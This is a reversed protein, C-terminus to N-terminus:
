GPFAPLFAESGTDLFREIVEDATLTDEKHIILLRGVGQQVRQYIEQALKERDEFHHEALRAKNLTYLLGSRNLYGREAMKPLMSRLVNEPILLGWIERISKQLEPAPVVPGSLTHLARVVLPLVIDYANKKEIDFNVKLYAYGLILNERM